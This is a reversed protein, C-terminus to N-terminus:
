AKRLWLGGLIMSGGCVVGMFALFAQGQLNFHAFMVLAGLVLGLVVLRAGTWIGSVTYGLAIVLGWFTHPERWEIPAFVVFALSIATLNCVWTALMRWFFSRSRPRETVRIAGKGRKWFYAASLAMGILSVAPWTWRYALPQPGYAITLDAIMWLVGWLMVIPANIRYAHLSSARRQSEDAAALAALAEDKSIESM